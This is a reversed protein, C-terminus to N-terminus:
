KDKKEPCAVRYLAEHITGEPIAKWNKYSGSKAYDLTGGEQTLEFVELICLEKTKSFCNLGYLVTRSDLKDFDKLPLRAQQREEIYRKKGEESYVLRTKISFIDPFARGSQDFRYFHDGDHDTGFKKWDTTKADYIARDIPVPQRAAQDKLWMIFGVCIILAAGTFLMAKLHHRQRIGGGMIFGKKTHSLDVPM